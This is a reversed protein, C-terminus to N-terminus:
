QNAFAALYGAPDEGFHELLTQHVRIPAGVRLALAIADSPRADIAVARDGQALGIEGIFTRDEIRTVAVHTLRAKSRALMSKMLDPPLTPPFDGPQLGSFVAFGQCRSITLPFAVQEAHDVLVLLVERSFSLQLLGLVRMEVLEGTTQALRAPKRVPGVAQDTPAAFPAAQQSTADTQFDHQAILRQTGMIEASMRQAIAVADGVSVPMEVQEQAAQMVIHAKLSDGAQTDLVIRPVSMGLLDALTKILDHSLPRGFHAHMQAYIVEFECISVPLIVAGGAPRLLLISPQLDGSSEDVQYLADGMTLRELATPDPVPGAPSRKEDEGCGEALAFAALLSAFRLFPM